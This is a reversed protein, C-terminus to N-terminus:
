GNTGITGGNAWISANNYTRLWTSDAAYWGVGQDQWYLGNTGSVRFWGGNAAVDGRVDLKWAPSATGIGM